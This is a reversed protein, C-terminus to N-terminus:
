RPTRGAPNWDVRFSRPMRITNRPINVRAERFSAENYTPIRPQDSFATIQIREPRYNPVAAARVPQPNNVVGRFSPAANASPM